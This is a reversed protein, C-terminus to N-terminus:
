LKLLSLASDFWHSLPPNNFLLHHFPCDRHSHILGNLPLPIFLLFIIHHDHRHSHILGTISLPIILFVIVRNSAVLGTISLPAWSTASSWAGAM